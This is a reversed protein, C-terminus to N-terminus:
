LVTIKEIQDNLVAGNQIPIVLYMGKSWQSVNINLKNLSLPKSIIEQGNISIVKLDIPQSINFTHHVRITNGDFYIKFPHEGDLISPASSKKFGELCTYVKEEEEIKLNMDYEILAIKLDKGIMKVMGKKLKYIENILRDEYNFEEKEILFVLEDLFLCLPDLHKETLIVKEDENVTAQILQMNTNVMNTYLAQIAEYRKHRSSLIENIKKPNQNLRRIFLNINKRFNRKTFSIMNKKTTADFKTPKQIRCSGVGNSTRECANDDESSSQFDECSVYSIGFNGLPYLTELADVDQQHLGRRLSANENCGNMTIDKNTSSENLPHCLGAFHGLEHMLVSEFDFYDYDMFQTEGTISIEDWNKQHNFVIDGGKNTVSPSLTSNCDHATLAIHLQCKALVESNLPFEDNIPSDFGVINKNDINSVIPYDSVRLISGTPDSALNINFAANPPDAGTDFPGGLDGNWRDRCRTFINDMDDMEPNCISTTPCVGTFPPSIYSDLNEHLYIPIYFPSTYFEVDNINVWRAYFCCDTCNQPVTNTINNALLSGVICFNLVVTFKLLNM